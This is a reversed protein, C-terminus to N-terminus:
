DTRAARLVRFGIDNSRYDTDYGSRSSSRVWDTKFYWSGGRVARRVDTAAEVCRSESGDFKEQWASCTWEWVNGATDYLGWPNPRFSGVPAVRANDWESGCGDCNANGTGVEEGWWYPTETGARAAYEWEAETPLRYKDGTRESLWRLYANADNWSVDVVARQGRGSEQPPNGPFKISTGARRSSWVFYDFQSYTVEYIGIFFSEGIPVSVSPVGFNKQYEPQANVTAIFSESREGVIFEDSAVAIEIMEPMPEKLLGLQMMRFQQLTWIYSPPLGNSLTWIFAQLPIGLVVLLLGAQLWAKNRSAKLFRYETEKQSPHFWRFQRLDRWDALSLWRKIGRKQQWQEAQRTLRDRNFSRDPYREIYNYLTKWYGIRQGTHPDRTRYRILTEHILDVYVSPTAPAGTPVSECGQSGEATATVDSEQMVSLLRINGSSQSGEPLGPGPQGALWNIVRQGTEPQQKRGAAVVRAEALSLRRRAHNGQENVQTLALLLELARNRGDPMEENLAELLGDAQMELMGFIGREKTYIKGVLRNDSRREWLYHLANEVLPLAGPEHEADRLIAASVESVDLGVKRAPQEIVERLGERSITKLLYRCCRTNYLESLGPLQEVGDLFDIRVTNILFLPCEEDLLANAVQADFYRRQEPDSFTFLEEFQDLVLLYATGSDRQDNLLYSLARKDGELQSQCALTDREQRESILARQLAEALRRLPQEGPLMPGIIRWDNFGTTANLAGNEIRSLLGANVFSSKGAGSNGEIQLWRITERQTASSGRVVEGFTALAQRIEHERGFFLEADDQSFARLGLYPCNDSSLQPTDGSHPPSPTFARDTVYSAVPPADIPSAEISRKLREPRYVWALCGLALASVSTLISILSDLTQLQQSTEADSLLDLFRPLWKEHLLSAALMALCSVLLVIFRKM